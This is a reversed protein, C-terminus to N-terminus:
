KGEFNVPPSALYPTITEALSRVYPKDMMNGHDQDVPVIHVDVGETACVHWGLTQDSLTKEFSDATRVLMFRKPYPKPTYAKQVNISEHFRMGKPVPLNAMRFIFRTRRWFIIKAKTVARRLFHAAVDDFRGQILDRGYKELRHIVYMIRFRARERLTLNQSFGFHWTGFLALFSVDERQSLLLRAMEYAVHGGRSFGCLQYPGHAQVKCLDRLFAVALEEVTPFGFAGGLTSLHFEYVPQDQPLADALNRAGPPGPFVCFLPPRGGSSRLPLLHTYEASNRCAASIAQAGQPSDKIQLKTNAPLRYSLSAEASQESHETSNSMMMMM